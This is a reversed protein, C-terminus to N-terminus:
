FKSKEVFFQTQILTRSHASVLDICSKSLYTSRICRRRGLQVITNVKRMDKIVMHVALTLFLFILSIGFGIQKFLRIKPGDGGGFTSSSHTNEYLEQDNVVARLTLSKDSSCYDIAYDM